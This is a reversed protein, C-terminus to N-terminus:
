TQGHLNSIEPIDLLTSEREANWASLVSATLALTELPM